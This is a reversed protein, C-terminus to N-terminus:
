HIINQVELYPIFFFFLLLYKFSLVRVDTSKKLTLPESCQQINANSLNLWVHSCHIMRLSMEFEFKTYFIFTTFLFITKKCVYNKKWKLAPSYKNKCEKLCTHDVQSFLTGLAQQFDKWGPWSAPLIDKKAVQKHEEQLINCFHILLKEHLNILIKIPIFYLGLQQWM